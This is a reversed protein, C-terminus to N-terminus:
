NHVLEEGNLYREMNKLMNTVTVSSVRFTEGSQLRCTYSTGSAEFFEVVIEEGMDESPTIRITMFPDGAPEVEAPGLRTIKMLFQYLTRFDKTPYVKGDVTVKLKSDANEADPFHEFRFVNDKGSSTITVSDLSTIDKMFLMKVVADDYQTTAWPVSSAAIVYVLPVDDVMCYYNGDDDKGGLTIVHQRVNYYRYKVDKDSGSSESSEESKEKTKVAVSIEAVSYPTKLGYKELDEDTPNVMVVKQASLATQSATIKSIINSDTSQLYPSTIIYNTLFDKGDETTTMRFSFTTPRVSGSLKMDRLVVEGDTDDTDKTPATYLSTSIYSTSVKSVGLAFTTSVIYVESSGAQRYYYGDKLPTLDGIEFTYESDDHYTVTVTARPTDFGYLAPDDMSSTAQKNASITTLNKVLTGVTSTNVLFDGYKSVAMDGDKNPELIFEEAKVGETTVKGDEDKEETIESLKIVAKKVPDEVTEGNEKSKDMLTITSNSSATSSGDGASTSPLLLLVTLSVGLVAIVAVVIILTRLQKSM